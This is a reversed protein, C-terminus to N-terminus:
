PSNKITGSFFIGQLNGLFAESKGPQCFLPGYIFGKRFRENREQTKPSGMAHPQLLEIISSWLCIFCNNDVHRFMRRQMQLLVIRESELADYMLSKRRHRNAFIYPSARSLRECSKESQTQAVKKVRRQFTSKRKWDLNWTRPTWVRRKWDRDRYKVNAKETKMEKRKYVFRESVIKTYKKSIQEDDCCKM